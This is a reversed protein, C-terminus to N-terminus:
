HLKTEGIASPKRGLNTNVVKECMRRIKLTFNRLHQPLRFVAAEKFSGLKKNKIRAQAKRV